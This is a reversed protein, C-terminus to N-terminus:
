AAEKRWPQSPTTTETTPDEEERYRPRFPDRPTALGVWAMAVLLGALAPWGYEVFGGVGRDDGLIERVSGAMQVYDEPQRKWSLDANLGNLIRRTWAMQSEDYMRVSRHASEIADRFMEPVAGRLETEQTTLYELNSELGRETREEVNQQRITEREFASEFAAGGGQARRYATLAATGLKEQWRATKERNFQELAGQASTIATRLRNQEMWINRATYAIALGLTEQLRAPQEIWFAQVRQVTSDWQRQTMAQRDRDFRGVVQIRDGLTEQVTGHDVSPPSLWGAHWLSVALSVIVAAFLLLLFGGTNIEESDNEPHTTMNRKMDHRRERELPSLNKFNSSTPPARPICSYEMLPPSFLSFLDSAM